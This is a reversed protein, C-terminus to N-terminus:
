RVWSEPSGSVQDCLRTSPLRSYVLRSYTGAAAGNSRHCRSPARPRFSYTRRTNMMSSASCNRGSYRRKTLPTSSEAVQRQVNRALHQLLVALDLGHAGRQRAAHQVQERLQRLVLRFIGPTRSPTRRPASPLGPRLDRCGRCAAAAAASRWCEGAPRALFPRAPRSRRACASRGPCSRSRPRLSGRPPVCGDPWRPAAPACHRPATAPRRMSAQTM